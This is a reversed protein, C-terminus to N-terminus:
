RPNDSLRLEIASYAKKSGMSGIPSARKRTDAHHRNEHGSCALILCELSFQGRDLCNLGFINVRLDNDPLIKCAVAPRGGGEGGGFGCTITNFYSVLEAARKTDTFVSGGCCSKAPCQNGDSPALYTWRSHKPRRVRKASWSPSRRPLRFGAAAALAEPELPKSRAAPFPLGGSARAASARQKARPESPTATRIRLQAGASATRCFTLRLIGNGCPKAQSACRFSSRTGGSQPNSNTRGGGRSYIRQPDPGSARAASLRQKARPEPRTVTRIRLQAGAASTRFFPLRLSRSSRCKCPFALTM